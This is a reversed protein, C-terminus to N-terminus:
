DLLIRRQPYDHPGAILPTGAQAHIGLEEHLQRALPQQPTEARDVTGGPFEWSGALDRGATRRALLIRGRADEIVGAVVHVVAQTRGKEEAARQDIDPHLPPRRGSAM